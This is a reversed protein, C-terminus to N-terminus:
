VFHEKILQTRREKRLIQSPNSSDFTYQAYHAFSIPKNRGDSCSLTQDNIYTHCNSKHCESIRLLVHLNSFYGWRYNVLTPNYSSVWRCDVATPNKQDKVQTGLVNQIDSFCCETHIILNPANTRQRLPFNANELTFHIIEPFHQKSKISKRNLRQHLLERYAYHVFM